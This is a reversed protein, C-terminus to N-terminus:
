IEKEVEKILVHVKTKFLAGGKHFYTLEGVNKGLNMCEIERTLNHM